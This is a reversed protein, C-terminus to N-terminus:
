PTSMPSRVAFVDFDLGDLWLDGAAAPVVASQGRVLAVEGDGAGLRAAGGVCILASMTGPGDVDLRGSGRWREAECWATSLLGCCQVGAMQKTEALGRCQDVFRQGRPAQWDTVALSREVHLLRPEGEPSLVGDSDYRRNWDWFRNTLGKRGPTVFQPELLTLGPAISHPTGADIIFADGAMVPVFNLMRDLRGNEALCRAVDARTINDRLGLYIGAGQDAQLVIWAEPKGSENAALAPDDAAPHVQVSLPAAADLLKILLGTQGGHRAAVAPGLWLAPAAAIAEALPVGSTQLISPFSPEM